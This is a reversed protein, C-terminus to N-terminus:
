SDQTRSSLCRARANWCCRGRIAVPRFGLRKIVPRCSHPPVGYVLASACGHVRQRVPHSVMLTGPRTSPMAAPVTSTKLRQHPVTRPVPGSTIFLKKWTHARHIDLMYVSLISFSWVEGTSLLTYPGHCATISADLSRRLSEAGPVPDCLRTCADLPM